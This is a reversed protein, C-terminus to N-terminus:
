GPREKKCMMGRAPEHAGLGTAWKGTYSRRRRCRAELKEPTKSRTGDPSARAPTLPRSEVTGVPTPPVSLIMAVQALM